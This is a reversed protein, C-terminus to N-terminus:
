GLIEQVPVAMFSGVGTEEEDHTHEGNTRYYIGAGVVGVVAKEAETEDVTEWIVIPVHMAIMEAFTEGESALRVGVEVDKKGETRYIVTACNATRDVSVVEYSYEIDGFGGGNNYTFAM